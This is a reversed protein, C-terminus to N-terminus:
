DETSPRVVARVRQWIHLRQDASLGAYYALVLMLGMTAGVAPALLVWSTAAVSRSLGLALGFFVATALAPRLTGKIQSLISIRLFKGIILPYGLSLILRGTMLGLCLGVIGLQFIRILVGAILLSVTASLLGLLVKNRL